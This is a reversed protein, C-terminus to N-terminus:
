VRRKNVELWCASDVHNGGTLGFGSQIQLTMCLEVRPLDNGQGKMHELWKNLQKRGIERGTIKTLLILGIPSPALEGWCWLCRHFSHYGGGFSLGSQSM